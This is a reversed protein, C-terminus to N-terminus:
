VHFCAKLCFFDTERIQQAILDSSEYNVASVSMPICAFKQVRAGCGGLVPSVIRCACAGCSPDGGLKQEADRVGPLVRAAGWRVDVPLGVARGTRAATRKLCAEGRHRDANEGRHLHVSVLKPEVLAARHKHWLDPCSGPM